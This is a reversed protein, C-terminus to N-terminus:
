YLQLLTPLTLCRWLSSALMTHYCWSSVLSNGPSFSLALFLAVHVCALFAVCPRSPCCWSTTLIGWPPTLWFSLPCLYISFIRGHHPWGESWPRSFSLVSGKAWEDSNIMSMETSTLWLINKTFCNQAGRRSCGPPPAVAEEAMGNIVDSVVVSHGLLTWRKNKLLETLFNVSKLLILVYFKFFNSMWMKCIQGDWSDFTAVNDQSILFNMQRCLVDYENM